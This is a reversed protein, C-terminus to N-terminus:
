DNPQGDQAGLTPEVFTDRRSLVYPITQLLIRLDLGLSQKEVYDLDLRKRQEWPINNRGNIQAWGTMGPKVLLKRKEEATYYRLQDVQDPRPGVLSMHGSLVNLLQPLEDLSTKRLFRGMRTVRPDDEANYTSGDPYRLDPSDVYMTRFKYCTFPKGDKGLRKQRFVSPGKSDLRVLLGATLLFPALLILSLAAVLIDTLRKIAQQFANM